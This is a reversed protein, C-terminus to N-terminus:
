DETFWECLASYICARCKKPNSKFCSSPTWEEMCKLTHEFDNTEYASPISVPYVINDKSSYLRLQTVDYGMETLAFYQAYLQYRFGDYVATISNKRETLVGSTIDFTDIRGVLNYKECYVTTGQLINKRSSYRAEDVAKHAAKGNLQPAQHYVEVSGTNRYIGSYYLSRPCFIFDNLQTMTWLHEM